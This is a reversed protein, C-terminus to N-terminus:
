KMEPILIAPIKEQKYLKNFSALAGDSRNGEKLLELTASVSNQVEELYKERLTSLLIVFMNQLVYLEPLSQREKPIFKM